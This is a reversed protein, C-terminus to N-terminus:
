LNDCYDREVMADVADKVQAREDSSGGVHDAFMEGFSIHQKEPWTEPKWLHSRIFAKACHFFCEDVTVRLVLTAPKRRAAMRELLEPDRTLEARGNVRVTENTGPVMFLVGVHPNNVVNRLGMALKNGPRDPILLTCEDVITVFGPDDGKPSADVNGDLDATSLVLFPAREIFARSRPDISAAVKLEVGAVPEGITEVLQDITEIRFDDSGNTPLTM